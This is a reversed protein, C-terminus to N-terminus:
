SNPSFVIRLHKLISNMVFIIIKALVHNYFNNIYLDNTNIFAHKHTINNM